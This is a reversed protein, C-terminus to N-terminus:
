DLSSLRRVLENKLPVGDPLENQAREWLKRAEASKGSQASALGTIFLADPQYPNIKLVDAMTETLPAPLPNPADLNTGAIMLSAFQLKPNVNAPKLAMAREYAKLAGDVNDLVNYSRGLMMWGDYDDPENELRKALGAVMGQIMDMNQPSIQGAPKATGSAVSALPLEPPHKPVMAMPMVNPRQATQSMARVVLDLWPADDPADAALDRWIAIAMEPKGQQAQELGLYFRARPDNRDVALAKMLADHADPSIGGGSAATLVEGLNAYADGSPSLQALQRYAAASEEYRQLQMYSHALLGWGEEDTPNVAVHQALQELFKNSKETEAVALAARQAAGADPLRPAGIPLYVALTVLPVAVALGGALGARWTKSGSKPTPSSFKNAALIRRQIEVRAADAEGATLTGRELDREVEKLQDQFVMLDYAMRNEVSKQGRLLPWLLAAMVLLVLGGFVAWIM